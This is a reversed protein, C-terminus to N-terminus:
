RLLVLKIATCSCAETQVGGAGRALAGHCVVTADLPFESDM